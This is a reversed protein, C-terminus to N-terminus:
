SSGVGDRRLISRVYLLEFGARHVNGHSKSGPQTTVLALTCGRRAGEALRAALLATQVGRRRYEARTASGSLQAIDGDIRMSAAGAVEDDLRAVYRVFGSAGGMDRLVRELVDRPFNDHAPVNTSDPVAFGDIVASLWTEISDAHAVAIQGAAPACADEHSISRGLVNEVAVLRYGRRALLEGVQSDAHSSLEVQVPANMAAFRGEIRDLEEGTLAREIGLGAVKNLPSEPGAYTAVGGALPEM